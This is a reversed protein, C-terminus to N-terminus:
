GKCEVHFHRRASGLLKDFDYGDRRCLHMLNTLLDIIGEEESGEDYPSISLVKHAYNARDENSLISEEERKLAEELKAQVTAILAERENEDMTFYEDYGTTELGAMFAKLEGETEFDRPISDKLLKEAEFLDEIAELYEIRGVVRAEEYGNVVYIRHM